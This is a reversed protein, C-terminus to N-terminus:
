VSNGAKSSIAARIEDVAFALVALVFPCLNYIARYLLLAALTASLNQGHSFTLITAEFVGLGGPAHSIIGLLVAGIYIASFVPFSSLQSEPMLVYLAGVACAMEVTGLMMQALAVKSSPLRFRYGLLSIRKGTGLRQACLLLAGLTILGTTRHWLGAAPSLIVAFLFMAAFGLVLATWSIATVAAVESSSLGWRRLMRYRVATATLAHFGITNSIANAVVGSFWARYPSVRGPATVSVAIVDYGGLVLFSLGTLLCCFWLNQSSITRIAEDIDYRSIGDLRYALSYFSLVSVIATSAIVVWKRLRSYGPPSRFSDM